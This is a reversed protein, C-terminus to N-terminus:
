TFLLVVSLLNLPIAVTKVLTLLQVTTFSTENGQATERKQTIALFDVNEIFGYEAM